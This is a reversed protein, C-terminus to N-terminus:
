KYQVNHLDIQREKRYHRKQRGRDNLPNDTDIRYAKWVGRSEYEPSKPSKKDERAYYIGKWARFFLLSVRAHCHILM